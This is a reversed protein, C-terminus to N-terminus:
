KGPPNESIYKILEERRAYKPTKELFKQYEVVAKSKMGAADYLTALRLHLEAKEAPALRIAENLYIVAKSGKRIALYGEGLLHQVDPSAPDSRAAITLIDIAKENQGLTLYLKGLNVSAHTHSPRESIARVYAAEANDNDKKLFFANGLLTWAHFDTPDSRVILKLTSIATANHGKKIDDLSKEFREQNEKNRVYEAASIVGVKEKVGMFQTWNVSFDQYVAFGPNFNLQRRDVEEHNIEVVITSGNRPVENITYSGNDSVQRRAIFTGNFYATVYIAPRPQGAPFGDLLVKGSVIIRDSREDAGIKKPLHNPDDPIGQSFDSTTAVIIILLSQFCFNRM